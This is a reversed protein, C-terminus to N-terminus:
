YPMYSPCTTSRSAPTSTTNWTTPSTQAARCVLPRVVLSHHDADPRLGTRLVGGGHARLHAPRLQERGVVDLLACALVPLVAALSGPGHDGGGGRPLVGVPAGRVGLLADLVRQGPGAMDPVGGDSRLRAVATQRGAPRPDQPLDVGGDAGGDARHTRWLPINGDGTGLYRHHDGHFHRFREVTQFIPWWMLLDGVWDNWYRDRLFRYHVADHGLVALAHQRGGIWFLAAVYLAPHWFGECLWVAAAVALWEAALATMARAQCLRSLERLKDTPLRDPIAQFFDHPHAPGPHPPVDASGVVPFTSM